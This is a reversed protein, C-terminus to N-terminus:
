HGAGPASDCAALLGALAGAAVLLELGKDERGQQIEGLRAAPRVDHAAEGVANPVDAESRSERPLLPVNAEKWRHM